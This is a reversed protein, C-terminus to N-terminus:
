VDRFFYKVRNATVDVPLGRAIVSANERDRKPPQAPIIQAAVTDPTARARKAAFATVSDERKRKTPSYYDTGEELKVHIQPAIASHINEHYAATTTTINNNLTTTTTTATATADESNVVNLRQKQRRKDLDRLAKRVVITAIQMEDASEYDECHGLYVSIIREPWDLDTGAHNLALKLVATAYSPPDTRRQTSTGDSPSFKAWCQLEWFYYSLWFEHNHGQFNALEKFRERATDYSGTDSLYQIYMRELRFLAESAAGNSKNKEYISRLDELASRIGVEAMGHHEDTSDAEFARRHLYSCYTTWVKALEGVGAAELVGTSTARHKIYSIFEFNNYEREASLIYQSWLTGSWPCHRTARDLAPAMSKPTRQPRRHTQSRRSEARSEELMKEEIMFLIYDNWFGTDCPFRLLAREYIACTLEFSTHHHRREQSLEWNIYDVFLTYETTTDESDMARKLALERFERRDWQARATASQAKVDVMIPEYNMEYYTSIFTSFQQWTKDWTQHPTQLRSIYVSRLKNMKEATPSMQLNGALLNLYKDWVLHSDNIRYRTAEAASEWVNVVSEWLFVERGKEIDEQTWKDQVNGTGGSRVTEYLYLIWDGYICWLKPSGYEQDVSKRCLELVDVREEITRALLSKEQIWEEWFQENIAFLQDLDQRADLLNDLFEFTHPNGLSDPSNPPFVHKTFADHLLSILRLRSSFDYRNARIVENLHKIEMRQDPTLSTPTPSPSRHRMPQQQHQQQHQHQHQHQHQQQQQQQHQQSSPSQQRQQHQQQRRQQTSSAMAAAKALADMATSNLPEEDANQPSILKTIDM